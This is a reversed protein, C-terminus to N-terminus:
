KLIIAATIIGGLFGSVAGIVVGNFIGRRIERQTKITNETISSNIVNLQKVSYDFGQKYMDSMEKYSSIIKNQEELEKKHIDALDNYKKQLGVYLDSEKKSSRLISIIDNWKRNSIMVTDKRSLYTIEFDDYVKVTDVKSQSILNLPLLV